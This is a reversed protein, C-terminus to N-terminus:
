MVKWVTGDYRYSKIAGTAGRIGISTVQGTSDSFVMVGSGIVAPSAQATNIVGNPTAMFGKLTTGWRMSSDPDAITCGTTVASGGLPNPLSSVGSPLAMSVSVPWPEEDVKADGSDFKQFPSSSDEYLGIKRNAPDIVVFHYVNRYVALMRAQYSYKQSLRAAQMVESKKMFTSWAAVSVGAAIGLMALVALLEILSFGAELRAASRGHARTSGAARASEFRPADHCVTPRKLSHSHM